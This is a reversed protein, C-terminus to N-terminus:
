ADLAALLRASREAWYDLGLRIHIEHARRAHDRAAAHDGMAAALRALVQHGSGWNTMGSGCGVLLDAYPALRRYLEAPDPEGLEAAVYGWAALMLSAAWNEATETGWRRMLSRARDHDGVSVAGLVALPRLAEMAPEGARAVLDDLIEGVRGQAWRSGFVTLWVVMDVTSAQWNHLLAGGEATLAEAEAWRGHASAHAAEGFRVMATLEQRRTERALREARARDREWAEFDGERLVHAMRMTLALTEAPAPLGPLALMEDIVAVRDRERGPVWISLVYNNLVRFLLEPDGVRRAIEVAEAAYREGDARRPGYYLEIGLTGLVAARDADALPDRLLDELLEITREDVAGYPGWYWLSLGGFVIVAELVAARDGIESALEVAQDLVERGRDMEGVVRLSRGLEILLRCRRAPDRTGLALLAQDWLEVAEDYARQATAQRAARAAYGVAKGAGGIRAAVAFHHALVPLRAAGDGAPLSELAEAVALHLRAKELRGLEAYLADRVLAHSFRYDFGDPAEVLLGTAVAPELASMVEEAPSETLAELVDLRVDRGLVAGARLLERTREPLRAVRRGIVERVGEPVGLSAADLRHESGLLRLLEGLYFPNGGTRRYLVEAFAPDSLDHGRLFAAVDEPTFPALAMRETGPERTLAALTERLREPERGPEPRVTALVLVPRRHLETALFALLRLSSADASHLDDLVVLTPAGVEAFAALVREYLEFLAAGPDASADTGEGALLRAAAAGREGLERLAQSWPWFPPAAEAEVCRGWVVTVGRSEAEEAALRALRTKGIGAEGTVLLVGGRGRRLDALRAAVRRSESERAILVGAPPSASAGAEAGPGIQSGGHPGGHPGGHSGSPPGAHPWSQPSSPTTVPGAFPGEELDESQELVAQELRRLEPGPQLGMEEDLLTRVRRLAGLADAQRGSRYLALVLLGWLRERYPHAEVLRELDAVCSPGDGMALRAEYRDEVAVARTEALSAVVPQAFGYGAFEALPEGRWTELAQNLVTLVDGYARRALAQRGERALSAFRALDVQGPAVSLRYGPERTLLVSPPTRPRRDPELVKRLNSIYSQLTATASSPPEDEWLEDILRDLSVIRGPELALVALVARQKRPGLDLPRGEGDHVEFPGFLRFSLAGM